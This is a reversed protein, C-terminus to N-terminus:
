LSRLRIYSKKKRVFQKYLIVDNNFMENILVISKDTLTLKYNNFLENNLSNNIKIGFTTHLFKIITEMKGDKLLFIKSINGNLFDTQQTFLNYDNNKYKYIYSKKSKYLLYIHDVFIDITKVYPVEFKFYCAHENMYIDIFYLIPNRLIIFCYIKLKKTYFGMDKGYDIKEKTIDDLCNMFNEIQIFPLGVFGIRYFM